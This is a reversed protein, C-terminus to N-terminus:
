TADDSEPEIESRCIVFSLPGDFSLRATEGRIDVIAVRISEGAHTITVHERKLTAAHRRLILM